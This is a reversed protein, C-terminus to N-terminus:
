APLLLLTPGIPGLLLLDVIRKGKQSRESARDRVLLSGQQPCRGGSTMAMKSAM